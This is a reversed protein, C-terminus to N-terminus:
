KRRVRRTPDFSQTRITPEKPVVPKTLEEEMKRILQALVFDGPIAPPWTAHVRCERVEGNTETIQVCHLEVARQTIQRKGLQTVHSCRMNLSAHNKAMWDMLTNVDM